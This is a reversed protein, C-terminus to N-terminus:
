SLYQLWHHNPEHIRLSDRLRNKQEKSLYNYVSNFDHNDKDRTNKAKYLLVIEPNLYPIDMENISWISEIPYSIRSDRRFIWSNDKTENLLIEIKENNIINSAHIEHVPLELFENNWTHFKGKVVKNFNWGKFHKKLYVQDKRFVSFEIDGHDRTETGIFLDIAWGGAIFWTRNFETMLTNLSKCKEFSM